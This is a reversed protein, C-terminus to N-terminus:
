HTSRTFSAVAPSGHQGNRWKRTECARHRRSLGSCLSFAIGLFSQPLLFRLIIELNGFSTCPGCYRFVSHECMDFLWLSVLRPHCAERKNRTSRWRRKLSLKETEMFSKCPSCIALSHFMPAMTDGSGEASFDCIRKCRRSLTLSAWTARLIIQLFSM